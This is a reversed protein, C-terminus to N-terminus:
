WQASHGAILRSLGSDKVFHSCFALVDFFPVPLSAHDRVMDTFALSVSAVETHCLPLGLLVPATYALLPSELVM